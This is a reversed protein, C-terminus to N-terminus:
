IESWIASIRNYGRKGQRRKKFVFLKRCNTVKREGKREEMQRKLCRSWLAPKRFFVLPFKWNDKWGEKRGDMVGEKRGEKGGQKIM